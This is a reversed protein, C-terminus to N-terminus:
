PFYVSGSLKQSVLETTVWVEIQMDFFMNMAVAGLELTDEHCVTVNQKLLLLWGNKLKRVYSPSVYVNYVFHSQVKFFKGYKLIYKDSFKSTDNKGHALVM